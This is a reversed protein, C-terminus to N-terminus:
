IDTTQFECHLHLYLLCCQSSIAYSTYFGTSVEADIKKFEDDDEDVEFYLENSTISVIGPSVVGPSILRAKTSINVPGAFNAFTLILELKMFDLKIALLLSSYTLRIYYKLIQEGVLDLDLERDDSLLENDDM